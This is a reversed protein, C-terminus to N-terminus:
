VEEDVSSGGGQQGATSVWRQGPTGGEPGNQSGDSEWYGPGQGVGYQTNTPPQSGYHLMQNYADIASTPPPLDGGTGTAGPTSNRTYRSMLQQRVQDPSLGTSLGMSTVGSNGVGGIGLYQNLASQAGTGATTWPSLDQRMQAQAQQQALIAM